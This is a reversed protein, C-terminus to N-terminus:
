KEGWRKEIQASFTRTRLAYVKGAVDACRNMEVRDTFPFRGNRVGFSEVDAFFTSAVANNTFVILSTKIFLPTTKLFLATADVKRHM